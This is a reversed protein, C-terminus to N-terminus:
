QLKYIYGSGLPEVHQYKKLWDAFFEDPNIDKFRDAYMWKALCLSGVIKFCANGAFSSIAYIQKNKVAKLAKWGPRKILSDLSEKMEDDAMKIYISTGSHASTSYVNQLIIDPNRDLIEEPDVMFSHVSGKSSDENKFIIEGFLNRGGGSTLMDNWGSGILCTKYEGNNEFYITSRKSGPIDKLREKIIDLPAQCFEIYEKGKDQVDYAKALIEVQKVFNVNEWGTVVLVAIGFPTLKKIAEEYSGNRPLVVAEPNLKVIAEYNLDTQKQGAIANLDLEPWYDKDQATNADIGVITEVKGLARIIEANMKNFVCVRSLPKELEVTRGVDDIVTIKEHNGKKSPVSKRCEIMLFILITGILMLKLVSSNKKFM